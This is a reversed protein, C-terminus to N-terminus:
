ERRQIYQILLGGLICGLVYHPFDLWVFDTGILTRGLFTERIKELLPADSLQLFELVSTAAFIGFPAIRLTASAPWFFYLILIWFVEYFVGAGYNNPWGQGPGSYAKLGFGAATILVIWFATLGRHNKFFMRIKLIPRSM